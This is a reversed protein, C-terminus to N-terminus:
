NCPRSAPRVSCDTYCSGVARYWVVSSGKVLFQNHCCAQTQIGGVCTAQGNGSASCIEATKGTKCNSYTWLQSGDPLSEVSKPITSFLPHLQLEVTPAGQWAALDDSHVFCGALALFIATTIGRM